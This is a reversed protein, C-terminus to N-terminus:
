NKSLIANRIEILLRIIESMADEGQLPAHPPRLGSGTKVGRTIDIISAKGLGSLEMLLRVPVGERRLRIIERNRKAKLPFEKQITRKQTEDLMKWVELAEPSLLSDMESPQYKAM